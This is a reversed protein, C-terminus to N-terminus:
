KVTELRPVKIFGRVILTTVTISPLSVQPRLQYLPSTCAHRPHTMRKLTGEQPCIQLVPDAVVGKPLSDEVWLHQNMLCSAMGKQLMTTRSPMQLSKSGQQQTNKPWIYVKTPRQGTEPASAPHAHTQLNLANLDASYRLPTLTQRRLQRLLWSSPPTFSRNLTHQRCLYAPSASYLPRPMICAALNDCTGICICSCCIGTEM